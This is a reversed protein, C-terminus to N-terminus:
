EQPHISLIDGNIWIIAQHRVPSLGNDSGINGYTVLSYTSWEAVFFFKTEDYVPDDVLDNNTDEWM